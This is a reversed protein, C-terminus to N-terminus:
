SRMLLNYTTDNTLNNSISYFRRFYNAIAIVLRIFIDYCIQNFCVLADLTILINEHFMSDHLLTIGNNDTNYICM